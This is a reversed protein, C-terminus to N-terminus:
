EQIQAIRYAALRNRVAHNGVFALFVGGAAASLMFLLTGIALICVLLAALALSFGPNKGLMLAGNRLAALVELKEMEFLFPLTYLQVVFWTGLLALYFGQAFQAAASQSLRGTLVYDGILIGVLLYNAIGWRWAIGWFQRMAHLFDKLEVVEGRAVLNGYYFLALTAPPGPLILVQSILWILNVAAVTWVDEWVDRFSARLVEYVDNM